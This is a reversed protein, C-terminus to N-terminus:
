NISNMLVRYTDVLRDQLDKRSFNAEVHARGLRGMHPWSNPHAILWKLASALAPSDRPPVLFGSVGDKVSEPVGGVWTAVVPIGAAQAEALVVPQGEEEGAATVISPLVFLDATAYLATAEGQTVAGLFEVADGLRLERRLDELKQRLPGDGAVRYRVPLRSDLLSRVAHLAYEIGKVEVLRAVSIIEVRRNDPVRTREVFHFKALDVGMPLKIVRRPDAGLGVIKERIFESGVTFLDGASFLERYLAPGHLKPLFNVDYGHFSTIIPGRLAGYKRLNIARTGNPGYHCHIIDYKL